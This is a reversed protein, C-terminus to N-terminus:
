DASPMNLLKRLDQSIVVEVTFVVAFLGAIKLNKKTILLVWNFTPCAYNGTTFFVSISFATFLKRPFVTHRNRM